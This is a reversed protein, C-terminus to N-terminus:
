PVLLGWYGVWGLLVAGAPVLIRRHHDTRDAPRRSRWWRVAIVITCVGVTATSGQLLLWPIPRGVVVPGIVNAATIMLFLLYVPLGLTTSLGAAVLLRETGGLGPAMSRRRIRSVLRALPYFAFAMTLTLIFGVHMLAAAGSLPALVPPPTETTPPTGLRPPETRALDDLWHREYAGYDAPLSMIRDFGGDTTLNLNHRVGSIFRMTYRTNGGRRLADEIATSSERPLAVRDFEGWEALVPQRVQQWAPVPDFNAEPFLGASIMTRLATIELTHPLGAGVGARRLFQDYGWATQVAPTVGIAGVTIVFKVASSRRCALPAVYAGESQAWLGLRSPDVDSRTALVAVAAVADAALLDYDRRLLSYGVTRKDYMLTIVGHRAFVEAAPQLEQRGRHGAGELMVLAPRRKGTPRPAVVIGHLIVGGGGVLTVDTTTVPEPEAFAPAVPAGVAALLITLLWGICVRWGQPKASSSIRGFSARRDARPELATWQHMGHRQVTIIDSLRNEVIVRVGEGRAARLTRGPYGADYRGEDCGALALTPMAPLGALLSRRSLRTSM